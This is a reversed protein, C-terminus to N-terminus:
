YIADSNIYQAFLSGYKTADTILQHYDASPNYIKSCSVGRWATSPNRAPTETSLSPLSITITSNGKLSGHAWAIIM